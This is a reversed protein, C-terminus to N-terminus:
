ADRDEMRIYRADLGEPGMCFKVCYLWFWCGARRGEFVYVYENWGHAFEADLYGPTGVAVEGHGALIYGSPSTAAGHLARAARAHYLPPRSPIDGQRGVGIALALGLPPLSLTHESSVM